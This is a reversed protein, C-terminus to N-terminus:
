ELETLAIKSIAIDQAHVSYVVWLYGDDVIANPYQCGVRSVSEYNKPYPTTRVAFARDFYVGDDSLAITLPDRVQESGTHEVHNGIMYCTGDPLNGAFSLSPADQVNTEVAPLWLAGAIRETAFLRKFTAGARGLMVETGDPRTYFAPEFLLNGETDTMYVREGYSAFPGYYSHYNEIFGIIKHLFDNKVKINFNFHRILAFCIYASLLSGIWSILFGGVAGFIIGNAIYIFVAPLPAVLAQLLILSLAGLPALIGWDELFDEILAVDGFIIAQIIGTRYFLGIIVVFFFFGLIRKYM